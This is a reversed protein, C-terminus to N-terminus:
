FFALRHSCPSVASLIRSQRHVSGRLKDAFELEDLARGLPMEPM